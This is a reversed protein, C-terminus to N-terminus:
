RSGGEPKFRHRHQAVIWHDASIRDRGAEVHVVEGDYTCSFSSTAVLMGPNRASTTPRRPRRMTTRGRDVDPEPATALNARQYWGSGVIWAGLHAQKWGRAPDDPAAIIAVFRFPPRRLKRRTRTFCELDRTSLGAVGSTPHSHLVGNFGDSADDLEVPDFEFWQRASRFSRGPEGVSQITIHEGVTWADSPDALYLGGATELRGAAAARRLIDRKVSGPLAVTADRGLRLEMPGEDTLAPLGTARPRLAPLQTTTM